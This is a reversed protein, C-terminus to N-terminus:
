VTIHTVANIESLVLDAEKDIYEIEEELKQIEKDIGIPDKLEVRNAALYSDSITAVNGVNSKTDKGFEIELLRDLKQRVAAQQLELHSKTSSRQSRMKELVNQKFPLSQKLDIVEAVTYTRSGLSVTTESNSKLVQSKIVDRRKILDSVKQYNTKAKSAWAELDRGEGKCSVCLLDLESTLKDIRKGLTKLEVLARTVSIKQDKNESKETKDDVNSMHRRSRTTNGYTIKVLKLRM